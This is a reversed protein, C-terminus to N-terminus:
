GSVQALLPKLYPHKRALRAIGKLHGFGGGFLLFARHMDSAGVKQAATGATHLATGEAAQGKAQMRGPVQQVRAVPPIDDQEDAFRGVHLHHPEQKAEDKTRSVCSQDVVEIGVHHRSQSHQGGMVPHHAQPIRHITPHPLPRLGHDHGAFGHLSANPGFVGGQRIM